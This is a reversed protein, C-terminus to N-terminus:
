QRTIRKSAWGMLNAPQPNHAGDLISFCQKFGSVQSPLPLRMYLTGLPYEGVPVPIQPSIRKSQM